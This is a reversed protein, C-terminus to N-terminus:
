DSLRENQFRYQRSRSLKGVFRHGGAEVQLRGQRWGLHIPAQGGDVPQYLAYHRQWDHRKGNRWVRPLGQPQVQLKVRQGQSGQYEVIGQNLQSRVLQARQLVATKFQQFNGHTEPEGIELAFGSFANGTGRAIAIKDNPYRTAIAATQAADFGQFDLQIPHLAIWTREYRLFVIGQQRQITATKPLFFQFPATGSRNLWLILNRYQALNDGGISHTSIRKPKLGSSIVLYDVGRDRNFAMLKFGNWDGGSGKPLAGVQFQHGIYLTEHFAPADEGGPKWTEYTPKANLLEVPKPFQKRALAVVAEPPRYNSTIPYLVDRYPQPNALPADGFYLGLEHTAGAGWVRNGGNYDRKSPGGFGGRWYKMAGAAHFWDLAGKALLRVEPDQAFDYLNLYPTINHGHYNESDWEGMGINYLAWVYRQLRRKYIQRTAENGTAEAMLYVSTERMARLNDTNRCDVWTDCRDKSGTYFQRENPFKRTLPDAESWIRGAELMRQRYAPDLYQGFFFLKRMQGKLTFSPYLDIGLTHASGEADADDRQLFEVARDRNGALFDLMARPYSRKENEFAKNGYGRPNALKDIADNARQWFEAELEPSWPNKYQAAMPLPVARIQGNGLQQVRDRRQSFEIKSGNAELGPQAGGVWGLALAFAVPILLRPLRM